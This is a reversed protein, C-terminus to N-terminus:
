SHFILHIMMETSYYHIRLGFLFSGTIVIFTGLPPTSIVLKIDCCRPFRGGANKMRAAESRYWLVGLHALHRFWPTTILNILQTRKFQLDLGLLIKHFMWRSQPTGEVRTISVCFILDFKLPILIRQLNHKLCKKPKLKNGTGAGGRKIPHIIIKNVKCCSLLIYVM